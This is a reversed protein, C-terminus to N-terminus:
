HVTYMGEARERIQHKAITFGASVTGKGVIHLLLFLLCAYSVKLSM